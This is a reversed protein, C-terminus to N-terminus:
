IHAVISCVLSKMGYKWMERNVGENYIHSVSSYTNVNGHKYVYYCVTHEYDYNTIYICRVLPTHIM